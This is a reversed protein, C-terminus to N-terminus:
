FSLTPLLNFCFQNSLYLLLSRVCVMAMYSHCIFLVWDLVSVVAQQLKVELMNVNLLMEQNIGKNHKQQATIYLTNLETLLGSLTRQLLTGLFNKFM